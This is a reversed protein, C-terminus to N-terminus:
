LRAESRVLDVVHALAALSKGRKLRAVPIQEALRACAQMVEPQLSVATEDILYFNRILEVVAASPPLWSLEIPDEASVLMLRSLPVPSDAFREDVSCLLKESNAHVRPNGDSAWGLLAAAEPWLKLKPWGPLCLPVNEASWSIATMADSILNHGAARLAAALTSKGTGSPGLLCVAAGGVDVCSGHLVLSERQGLAMALGAGSVAMAMDESSCGERPAVRIARGGEVSLECLGEWNLRGVGHRTADSPAPAAVEVTLDVVGEDLPEPAVEPGLPVESEIRLGFATFCVTSPRM